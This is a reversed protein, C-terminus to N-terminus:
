AKTASRDAGLAGNRRLFYRPICLPQIEEFSPTIATWMSPGVALNGFSTTWSHPKCPFTYPHLDVIWPTPLRKALEFFWTMFAIGGKFTTATIGLRLQSQGLAYRAANPNALASSIDPFPVSEPGIDGTRLEHATAEQKCLVQM